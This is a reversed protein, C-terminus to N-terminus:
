EALKILPSTECSSQYLDGATNDLRYTTDRFGPKKGGTKM